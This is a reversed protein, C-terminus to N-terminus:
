AEEEESEDILEEEDEVEVEEDELLEDEEVEEDQEAAAEDLEEELSEEAQDEIEPPPLSEEPVPEPEPELVVPPPPEPEYEPVSDPLAQPYEPEAPTPGAVGVPHTLLAEVESVDMAETPRVITGEVDEDSGKAPKMSPAAVAANPDTYKLRTTGLRVEDGSGLKQTGQVQVGNILVGNRSGLDIIHVGHLDRRIRAHERSICEDEIVFTAKRSRGILVESNLDRLHLVAGANNGNLVSLYPPAEEEVGFARMVKDIFASAVVETKDSADPEDEFRLGPTPPYAEVDQQPSPAEPAYTAGVHEEAPAYAEEVPAPAVGGDAGDVLFFGVEYPGVTLVDGPNILVPQQAELPYGNFLTGTVSGIDLVIWQGEYLQIQAHQESVNEDPLALDVVNGQGLTIVEQEFDIAGESGDVNNRVSLRVAM